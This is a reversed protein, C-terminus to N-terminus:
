RVAEPGRAYDDHDLDPTVYLGANFLVVQARHRDAEPGTIRVGDGHETVTLRGAAKAKVLIYTVETSTLRPDPPTSPTTM